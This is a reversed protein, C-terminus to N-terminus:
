QGWSANTCRIGAPKSSSILGTEVSIEWAKRVDTWWEKSEPGKAEGIFRLMEDKGQVCSITFQVGAAPKSVLLADTVQFTDPGKPKEKALLKSTIVMLSGDEDRQYQHVYIPKQVLGGGLDSWGDIDFDGEYSKGIFSKAFEQDKAQAALAAEVAAKEAASQKRKKASADVSGGLLALTLALLTVALKVFSHRRMASQERPLAPNVPQPTSRGPLIEDFRHPMSKRGLHVEGGQARSAGAGSQPRASGASPLALVAKLRQQAQSAYAQRV